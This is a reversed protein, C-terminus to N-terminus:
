MRELPSNVIEKRKVVADASELFFFWLTSFYFESRFPFLGAIYAIAGRPYWVM